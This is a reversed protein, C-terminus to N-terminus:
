LTRIAQYLGTVVQNMRRFDLKEWTDEAEHYNRNRNFATDTIMFADIDFQWFNRHDSFDVGTVSSFTNLSEVPLSVAQTFSKKVKHTFSRSSLSGVFSIFNGQDPFLWGVGPPYSQCGKTECFYGIMELSIMGYVKVGEKAVQAAYAYSGMDKTGFTPPEELSFAVFRITREAPSLATLRALELLGAVGSANDDAGPTGVVTDYHAGIILIEKKDPHSGKVEGIVNYYTKGQYTFAQKSVLCGFSRLSNEIHDAAKNLKPLDRFSREGIEESLLRVTSILNVETVEPSTNQATIALPIALPLLVIFFLGFYIRNFNLKM